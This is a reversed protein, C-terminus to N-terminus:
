AVVATSSLKEYNTVIRLEPVKKNVYGNCFDDMETIKKAQISVAIM